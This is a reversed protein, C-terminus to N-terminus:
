LQNGWQEEEAASIMGEARLAGLGDATGREILRKSKAPDFTLLDDVPLPDSPRIRILPMALRPTGGTSTELIREVEEKIEARQALSLYSKGDILASVEDRQAKKHALEINIRDWTILVDNVLEHQFIDIARLIVPKLKYRGSEKKLAFRIPDNIVCIARSVYGARSDSLFRSFYAAQRTPTNNGVGGDVYKGTKVSVPPFFFPLAASALLVAILHEQGEIRKYNQLRQQDLKKGGDAKVFPEVQDSIYFTELEGSDFNTLCILLHANKEILKDYSVNSAITQRLADNDFYSFPDRGAKRGLTWSSIESSSVGIVDQTTLTSYLRVLNDLDGQAAMAANLAGVSTGCYCNVINPSKKENYKRLAKLVGAGYPGRSGGGSLVIPQFEQM